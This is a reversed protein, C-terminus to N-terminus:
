ALSFVTFAAAAAPFASLVIIRKRGFKDSLGGLSFSGLMNAMSLIGMVWGTQQLSLSKATRLLTPTWAASSWFVAGGICEALALILIPLTLADKFSGGRRVSEYRPSM